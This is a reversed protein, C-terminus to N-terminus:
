ANIPEVLKESSHLISALLANLVEKFESDKSLGLKNTVDVLVDDRGAHAAWLRLDYLFFFPAILNSKDSLVSDYVKELLNNGKSGENFEVGKSKLLARLAANNTSENIIENLETIFIKFDDTDGM